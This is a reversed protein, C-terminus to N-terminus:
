ICFTSIFIVAEHAVFMSKAASDIFIAFSPIVMNIFRNVTLANVSFNFATVTMVVNSFNRVIWDGLDDIAGILAM